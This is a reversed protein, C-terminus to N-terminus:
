SHLIMDGAEHGDHISSCVLFKKRGIGKNCLSGRGANNKILTIRWQKGNLYILLGIFDINYPMAGNLERRM